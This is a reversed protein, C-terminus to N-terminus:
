EPKNQIQWSIIRSDYSLRDLLENVKPISEHHTYFFDFLEDNMIKAVKYKCTKMSNNYQGMKNIIWMEDKRTLGIIDDLIEDAEGKLEDVLGSFEPSEFDVLLDCLHVNLVLSDKTNDNAIALHYAEMLNSFEMAADYGTSDM